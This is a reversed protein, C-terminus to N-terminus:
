KLEFLTFSAQPTIQIVTQSLQNGFSRFLDDVEERNKEYDETRMTYKLPLNSSRSSASSSLFQHQRKIWEKPIDPLQAIPMECLSQKLRQLDDSKNTWLIRRCIQRPRQLLMLETFNIGVATQDQSLMLAQIVQDGHHDVCTMMAIDGYVKRKHIITSPICCKIMRKWKDQQKAPAADFLKDARHFTQIRRKCLDSKWYSTSEWVSETWNTSEIALSPLYPQSKGTNGRPSRPPLDLFATDVYRSDLLIILAHAVYAGDYLQALTFFTTYRRAFRQMIQLPEYQTDVTKLLYLVTLEFCTGDECDFGALGLHPFDLLISWEDTLLKKISGDSAKSRTFDSVYLLCRPLWCCIEGLLNGMDVSSLRNLETLPLDRIQCGMQLIHILFREGDRRQPEAFLTALMPFCVIPVEGVHTSITDFHQLDNNCTLGQYQRATAKVIDTLFDSHPQLVPNAPIRKRWQVDRPIRGSVGVHLTAQTHHNIDLLQVEMSQQSQMALLKSLPLSNSALSCEITAGDEDSASDIVYLWFHIFSPAGRIRLPMQTSLSSTNFEVTQPRQGSCYVQLTYEDNDEPNSVTLTLTLNISREEESSMTPSLLAEAVVSVGHRPLSFSSSASPKTKHSRGLFNASFHCQHATTSLLLCHM